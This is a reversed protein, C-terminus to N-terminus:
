SGPFNVVNIAYSYVAEVSPIPLRWRFTIKPEDFAGILGYELISERLGSSKHFVISLHRSFPISEIAM